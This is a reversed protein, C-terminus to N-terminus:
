IKEDVLYFELAMKVETMWEEIDAEDFVNTDFHVFPILQKQVTVAGLYLEGPSCRLRSVAEGLQLRAKVSSEYSIMPYEHPIIKDM